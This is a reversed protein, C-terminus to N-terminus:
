GAINTGCHCIFVGIRAEQKTTTGATAPAAQAKVPAKSEQKVPVDQKKSDTKKPTTKKKEAM